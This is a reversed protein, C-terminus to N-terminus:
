LGLAAALLFGGVIVAVVTLCGVAARWSLFRYLAVAFVLWLCGLGFTQSAEIPTM